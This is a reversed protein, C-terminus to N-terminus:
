TDSRDWMGIYTNIEADYRGQGEEKATATGVDIAVVGMSNAVATAADYDENFVDLVTYEGGTYDNRLGLTSEVERSAAAWTANGVSAISWVFVDDKFNKMAM